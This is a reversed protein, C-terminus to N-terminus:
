YLISLLQEVWAVMSLVKLEELIHYKVKWGKKEKRM